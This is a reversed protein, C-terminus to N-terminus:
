QHRPHQFHCGIKRLYNVAIAYADGVLEVNMVPLGREVLM